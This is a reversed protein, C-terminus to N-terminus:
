AIIRKNTKIGVKAYRRPKVGIWGPVQGSPPSLWASGEAQSKRRTYRQKRSVRFAPLGAFSFPRGRSCDHDDWYAPSVDQLLGSSHESQLM